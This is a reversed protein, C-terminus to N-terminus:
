STPENKVLKAALRIGSSLFGPDELFFDPAIGTVVEPCLSISFIWRRCSRVDHTSSSDENRSSATANTKM